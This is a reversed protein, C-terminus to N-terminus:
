QLSALYKYLASLDTDDMRSIMQWPMQPKLQNGSRDVRSQLTTLFQDQIRGRV